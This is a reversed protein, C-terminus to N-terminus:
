DTHDNLLADLLVDVVDLTGFLSELADEITDGIASVTMGSKKGHVAVSDENRYEIVEHTIDTVGEKELALILREEKNPFSIVNAM